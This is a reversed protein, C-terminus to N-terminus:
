WETNVAVANDEIVAVTQLGNVTVEASDIHVVSVRHFLSLDQSQASLCPHGTAVMNVEAHLEIPHLYIGLFPPVRMPNLIVNRFSDLQVAEAFSRLTKEPRHKWVTPRKCRARSTFRSIAMM